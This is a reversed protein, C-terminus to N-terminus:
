KVTITRGSEGPFGQFLAKALKTAEAAPQADPSRARAETQARGEWMVAGSARNRLQVSLQAAYVPNTRRKGIGFSTGGGVGVNGGSGGGIGISLPRQPAEVERITRSLTIAALLPAPQGPAPAAFGQRVLEAQVARAYLGVELGAADGPMAAEVAVAARSIPQHLHFRTVRVPSGPTTCGAALVCLLATSAFRPM